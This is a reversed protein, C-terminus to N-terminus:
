HFDRSSLALGDLLADLSELKGAIVHIVEGERELIGKIRLMKAALFPAKQARATASWVVVNVNGTHDELTVFTVGSATGPSQRGTVVGVVTVLSQHQKQNLDCAFTFPPLRNDALLLSVPHHELSLGLNVYDEIMNEEASPAPLTVASPEAIALTPEHSTPSLAHTSLKSSHGMLQWRSQYRNGALTALADASALAQLAPAGIGSAKVQELSNFGQGRNAILTNAAQQPLGKVQRFGLRLAWEGSHQELTHDYRSHNVCVPLVTHGHRIADQVLQSASYFGMPLSNLLACYFIQPYYHKLWASAYALLAFSASHSEPFGYEGFGRIQEFLQEAFTKPYGREQMGNILKSKFQMLKGTKKWSAMARRLQDAEGGSFGAAVMALQIVQEQFIPVGLTRELVSRVDESPYSVSETGNRRKLYPHVMGGQIPGPRVIAIQIVLDYYSAPKLRPLISMQARSEVQFVGVSDAKQLDAYVAQDDMSRTIQYLEYRKHEHREILDLAKRIATLMGLALVDVKLLGLSELDDKDWQIVTRDPMAANEVPVLEYLPGSSIVFGGVHQSLHRPFGLLTETLQILQAGTHTQADIGLEGLQQQWPQSADRRNINKIYFDLQTDNFGLAKGVDRLASKFRYGIVTAALAARERGYKQYIYQIIEERREHEFDVDIDPPENREKSIFREFLVNIHRPDVATIELCYCVVSNASSGRGQYLIHQERAFRVIDDITLFFHAYEMEEILTLEKDITAAISTPVGQPFRKRCGEAVRQRLYAMATFGSPIVEAPYEYKLEGMDFQCQEAIHLSQQLWRTNFLRQLKSISRLSYEANSLLERGAESVTLGLKRASLVHQLTLRQSHHMLVGGCAVLPIQETMALQELQRNHAEENNTLHRQVGIWLRGSHYKKLWQASDTQETNGEPLWILLCHRLSAIDWRSLEYHNKPARRRANTIIRCLEAYGQRNPCLAVLRMDGPMRLLSGVILKIPLKYEKIASYAKVVGAVSCEDTIAIARYGLECARVILEEPHSAGTLFSYNSQCFLEAYHM